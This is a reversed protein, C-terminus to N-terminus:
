DSFTLCTVVEAVNDRLLYMESHSLFILCKIHKLVFFFDRKLYSVDNFIIPPSLVGCQKGKTLKELLKGAKFLTYNCM